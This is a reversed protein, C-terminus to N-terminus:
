HRQHRAISSRSTSKFVSRWPLLFLCGAPFDELLNAASISRDSSPLQPLLGQGLPVPSSPLDSSFDVSALM